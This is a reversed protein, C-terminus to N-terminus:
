TFGPQVISPDSAIWEELDLAELRGADVLSSQVPVLKGDRIEWTKIETGM